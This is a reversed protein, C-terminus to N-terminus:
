PEIVNGRLEGSPFDDTHVNVYTANRRIARVLERFEGADIGQEAPGIVDDAMITGQVTGEQPCVPADGGGCLFAVVGGNTAPRGLHIHAFLVDGGELDDFRLRYRIAHAGIEAKFDGEGTTSIAPVEQYGSLTAHVAMPSDAMALAGGIALIMSTGLAVSALTRVKM